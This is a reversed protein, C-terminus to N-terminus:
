RQDDHAIFFDEQLQSITSGKRTCVDAMMCVAVIWVTFCFGLSKRTGEVHECCLSYYVFMYMLCNVTFPIVQIGSLNILFLKHGFSGKSKYRFGEATIM